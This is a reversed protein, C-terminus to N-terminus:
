KIPIRKLVNWLGGKAIRAKAQDKLWESRASAIEDGGLAGYGGRVVGMGGGIPMGIAAMLPPTKAKPDFFGKIYAPVNPALLLLGYSVLAGILQANSLIMFPPSWLPDVQNTTVNKIADALLFIAVVAPFVLINSILNKLWGSFSSGEGFPLSASAIILPGAILSLIIQIYTMLLTFFLKFCAFLLGMVLIFSLVSGAIGGGVVPLQTLIPIHIVHQISSGIAGAFGRGNVFYEGILTAVGANYYTDAAQASSVTLVPGFSYAAVGILVYVLDVLIGVIAYSFTIAILGVVMKPIASEITVVTQPSIKVRFMIALGALIFIIVFLMYALNRSIKWISLISKFASFGIGQQAYATKIIGFNKGLDALYEVSSAPPQSCLLSILNGLSSIAGGEGSVQLEQICKQDNEKCTHGVAHFIGSNFFANLSSAWYSPYSVTGQDRDQKLNEEFTAYPESYFGGGAGGGDGAEYAARVRTKSLFPILILSLFFIVYVLIKKTRPQNTM